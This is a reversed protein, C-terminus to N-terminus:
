LSAPAPLCRGVNEGLDLGFSITIGLDNDFSEGTISENTLCYIDLAYCSELTHISSSGTAEMRTFKGLHHLHFTSLEEVKGYHQSIHSLAFYHQCRHLSCELGSCTHHGVISILGTVIM